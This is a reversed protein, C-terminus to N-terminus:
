PRALLSTNAEGNWSQPPQVTVIQRLAVIQVNSISIAVVAASAYSRKCYTLVDGTLLDFGLNEGQDSLGM